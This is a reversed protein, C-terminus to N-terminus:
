DVTAQDVVVVGDHAVSLSLPSTFALELFFFLFSISLLFSNNTTVKKYNFRDIKM